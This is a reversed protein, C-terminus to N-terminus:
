VSSDHNMKNIATGIGVGHNYDLVQVQVTATGAPSGELMTNNTVNVFVESAAKKNFQPIRYVPIFRELYDFASVGYTCGVAFLFQYNAGIDINLIYDKFDYDSGQAMILNGTPHFVDSFGSPYFGPIYNGDDYNDFHLIYPHLTAATPLVSDLYPDLYATYGSPNDLGDLAVIETPSFARTGSTGGVIALIGEVNFVHLDIRNKGSIPELPDGIDFPHKIGIAMVLQNDINIGISKIRVCDSCPHYTLFNTIDLTELSDTINTKRIPVIEASLPDTALNITFAGILGEGESPFGNEDRTSAFVSPNSTSLLNVDYLPSTPIGSSCSVSILMLSITFFLIQTKDKYM